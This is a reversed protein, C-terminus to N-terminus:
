EKEVALVCSVKERAGIIRLQWFPMCSGHRPVVSLWIDYNYWKKEKGGSGAGAKGDESKHQNVCKQYASPGFAAEPQSAPQKLCVHFHLLATYIYIFLKCTNEKRRLWIFM